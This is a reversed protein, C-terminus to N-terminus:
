TPSSRRPGSSFPPKEMFPQGALTPVLWDDTQLIHYVLGFTDAEDPKWPDHRFLGAAIWAAIVAALVLARFVNETTM